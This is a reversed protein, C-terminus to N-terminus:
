IDASGGDPPVTIRQTIKSRCGGIARVARQGNRRRVVVEDLVDPQRHNVTGPIADVLDGELSVFSAVVSETRRGEGGSGVALLLAHGGGGKKQTLQGYTYPNIESIETINWQDM